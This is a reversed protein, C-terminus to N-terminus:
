FLIVDLIEDLYRTTIWEGLEEAWYRSGLEDVGLNLLDNYIREELRAQVRKRLDHISITEGVARKEEIISKATTIVTAKWQEILVDYDYLKFINRILEIKSTTSLPMDRIIQLVEEPKEHFKGHFFRREYYNERFVTIHDGRGIAYVYLLYEEIEESRIVQYSIRELLPIVYSNFVFPHCFKRIKDEAWKSKMWREVQSKITHPVEVGVEKRLLIIMLGGFKEEALREDPVIVYRNWEVRSVMGDLMLTEIAREVVTRSTPSGCSTLEEIIEDISLDRPWRRRLIKLIKRAIPTLYVAGTIVTFMLVVLLSTFHALSVVLLGLSIQELAFGRLWSLIIVIPQLGYVIPVDKSLQRYRGMKLLITDLLCLLLGPLGFVVVFELTVNVSLEGETLLSTFLSFIATLSFFFSVLVTNFIYHRDDQITKLASTALTISAFTGSLVAIVKFDDRSLRLSIRAYAAFIWIFFLISLILAAGFYISVRLGRPTLTPARPRPRFEREEM